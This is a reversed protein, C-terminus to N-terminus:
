WPNGIMTFAAWYYPHSLTKNGVGALEPPLPIKTRPTYLEGGEIRVQGRLMSLQVQRLAEAKIPATKLQEYFDTMLGLTGEDSVYWLSGLASKVGAQVALGTFGLEAEQSGLATQCASLVLLEVSPNNWSMQRLQDLRLQTDWLQIYSHSPEGSDFEAHTALHIIGFPQIRRQEKLNELTFANNLFSKGKWLQETITLLELPVAPLPKLNAFKDAGMALVEVGKIDQYRTDTLSLSPMLGLSYREILFGQGDHLAAIPISRLGADMLFVLNQVKRTKLDPEIPAVLWKYLQQSPALFNRPKRTNTVETRFQEAVKLVQSRTVGDISKRIPIGQATVVVLELQYNQQQVTQQEESLAQQNGETVTDQSVKSQISKTLKLNKTALSKARNALTESGVTKPAFGIYMLAPKVGTSQEIKQLTDRAEALTKIPVNGAEGFYKQYQSTFSNEIVAVSEVKAALDQSNQRLLNERGLPKSTADSDSTTGSSEDIAVKVTSINGNTNTTSSDTNQATNTSVSNNTDGTTLSGTNSTKGTTITSNTTSSVNSTTGTNLNTSNTPSSINSTTGANANATNTSNIVGIVNSTGVTVTTLGGSNTNGTGTNNGTTGTNSGSSNTNGTGTNNGTTGTTSGGSNTNGTGTNNGTNGTTSGGSNTNNNQSSPLATIFKINSQQYTGFPITQTPKITISGDAIAKTTGNTTADGVIFPIASSLAGGGHSLSILGTANTSISGFVQILNNTSIQINGGNGPGQSSADLYGNVSITNQSTTLSIDGGNGPGQDTTDIYGTSITNKASLTVAGASGQGKESTDINGTTISGQTASLTVSAGNGPSIENLLINGTTINGQTTTLSITGANGKGKQTDGINGTAIGNQASLTVTLGDKKDSSTIDGIAIAGTKATLILAPTTTLTNFDPDSSSISSPSDAGTITIANGTISGDAVVKLSAGSYTGISYDGGVTFIPDYLSVFNGGQGSLNLISLNGGSNFHADGSIIGDSVLSMNGSSQFPTQPHNLALIDIKQNGQIYLDGGSQAIFPNAISDRIFVTNQALLKLDSLTNLQSEVLTLNNNASLLATQATVNKAVVDGNQVAIGSGVLEVQGASNVTLGTANSSNGGTLLEPLSLPTPLLFNPTSSSTLPQIELSLLHGPQSIRVVSEGPVSAVIIQGEPAELNGTSTVTGGLLTLSQGKAVSLQGANIIAGPTQSTGFAFTSPAGLLNAYDNNGVANFWNSGFGIKTATTATFSAPVNLSANSGFVIGAPNILFLNSNGGTVQILGNIISAKGGTVRSLINQIAPNSLFNATQNADLGFQDFSHFLNSGDTSPTGGTIDYRNGTPTVQTGTGDAAPVIPQAWSLTPWLGFALPLLIIKKM